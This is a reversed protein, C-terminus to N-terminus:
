REGEKGTQSSALSDLFKALEPPLDEPDETFANLSVYYTAYYHCARCFYERCDGGFSVKFCRMRRGCRRCRVYFRKM